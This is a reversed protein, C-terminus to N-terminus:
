IYLVVYIYISYKYCTRAKLLRTKIFLFNLKLPSLINICFKIWWMFVHSYSDPYMLYCLFLPTLNIEVDNINIPILPYVNIVKNTCLFSSRFLSCM